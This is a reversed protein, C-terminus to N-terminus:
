KLSGSVLLSSTIGNKSANHKRFPYFVDSSHATGEQRPMTSPTQCEQASAPPWQWTWARPVRSAPKWESTHGSSKVWDNETKCKYITCKGKKRGGQGAAPSCTKCTNNKEFPRLNCHNPAETYGHQGGANRQWDLNGGALKSINTEM